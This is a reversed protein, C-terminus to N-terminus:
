VNSTLHQLRFDLNLQELGSGFSLDLDPFTARLKNTGLLTHYPRNIKANEFNASFKTILLKDLNFVKAMEMVFEHKSLGQNCGLNYIGFNPQYQMFNAIVEAIQGAYLPNFTVNDYGNILRNNSMEQYAWEFLSTGLPTKFGYINLRLDYAKTHNERVAKGGLYKTLAYNNLPKAEDVEIRRIAEGNFISDTSIYIFITNLNHLALNKSATVHMAEALHYDSECVNLDVLAACHIVFDYDIESCKKIFGMSCLDGQFYSKLDWFVPKSRGIGYIEYQSDAALKRYVYRGLMGNIGTILVKKM